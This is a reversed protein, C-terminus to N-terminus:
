MRKDAQFFSHLWLILCTAGFTYAAVQWPELGLCLENVAKRLLNAYELVTELLLYLYELVQYFMGALSNSSRLRKGRKVGDFFHLVHDVLVEPILSLEQLVTTFPNGSEMEQDM